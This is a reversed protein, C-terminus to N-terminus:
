HLHRCWIVKVSAALVIRYNQWISTSWASTCFEFTVSPLLMFHRGSPVNWLSTQVHRGSLQSCCSSTKLWQPKSPWRNFTSKTESSHTVAQKKGCSTKKPNKEFWKNQGTQDKFQYEAYVHKRSWFYSQFDKQGHVYQVYIIKTGQQVSLSLSIELPVPSTDFSQGSFIRSDQPLM